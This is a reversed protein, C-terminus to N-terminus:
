AAEEPPGDEYVVRIPIANGDEGSLPQTPKGYAYAGILALAQFRDRSTPDSALDALQQWGGGPKEMFQRCRERFDRAVAPRGAPNGSQGKGWPRLNKTRDSIATTMGLAHFVGSPM